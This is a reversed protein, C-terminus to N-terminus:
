SKIDNLIRGLCVMNDTIQSSKIWCFVKARDVCKLSNPEFTVRDQSLFIVEKPHIDAFTNEKICRIECGEEFKEPVIIIDKVSTKLGEIRHNDYQWSIVGKKVTKGNRNYLQQTIYGKYCMVVIEDYEDSNVKYVYLM